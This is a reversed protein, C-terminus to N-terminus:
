CLNVGFGSTGIGNSGPVNYHAGPSPIPGVPIANESNGNALFNVSDGEGFAQGGGKSTGLTVPLGSGATFIPAFSSGGLFHGM